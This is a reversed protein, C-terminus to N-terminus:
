VRLGARALIAEAVDPAALERLAAVVADLDGASAQQARGALWAGVTEEVGDVFKQEAGSAEAYAMLAEAVDNVDVAYVVALDLVADPALKKDRRGAEYKTIGKADVARSLTSAAIGLMEAVRGLTPWAALRGVSPRAANAAQRFQHQEHAIQRM